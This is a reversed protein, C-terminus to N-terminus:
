ATLASCALILRSMLRLLLFNCCSHVLFVISLRGAFSTRAMSIAHSFPADLQTTTSGMASCLKARWLPDKLPANHRRYPHFGNQTRANTLIHTQGQIHTHEYTYDCCFAATLSEMETATYIERNRKRDRDGNMSQKRM